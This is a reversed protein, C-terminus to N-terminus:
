MMNDGLGMEECLLGGNSKPVQSLRFEGALPFYWLSMNVKDSHFKWEEWFYSNLGRDDYEQHLMRVFIYIVM